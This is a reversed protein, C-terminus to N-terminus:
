RSSGSAAASSATRQRNIFSALRQQGDGEFYVFQIGFGVLGERERLTPRVVEATGRIPSPQGPPTLEFTAPSGIEVEWRGRILMGSVSLNDCQAVVRETKGALWLELKVPLSLDLRPEVKLVDGLVSELEWDTADDPLVRNVGRNLLPKVRPVAVREALLLVAANRCASERWRISKLLVPLECRQLPYGLIVLDYPNREVEEFPNGGAALRSAECQLSALAPLLRRYLDTEEDERAPIILARRVAQIV